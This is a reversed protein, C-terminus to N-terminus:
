LTTVELDVSYTGQLVRYVEDLDDLKYVEVDWYGTDVMNRTVTAGLVIDVRGAAADVITCTATAAQTEGYEYKVKRFYCRVGYGTLNFTGGTSVKRIKLLRKLVAGAQIKWARAKKREGCPGCDPQQTENCGCGSM